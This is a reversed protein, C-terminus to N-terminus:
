DCDFVKNFFGPYDFSIFCFKNTSNGTVSYVIGEGIINEEDAIEYDWEHVTYFEADPFSRNSPFPDLCSNLQSASLERVYRPNTYSFNM